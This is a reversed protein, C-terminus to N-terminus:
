SSTGLARNLDNLGRYSENAALAPVTYGLPDMYVLM